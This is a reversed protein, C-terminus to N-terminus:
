NAEVVSLSVAKSRTEQEPNYYEWAVAPAATVRGSLAARLRYGLRLSQSPELARLYLLLSRPLQQVKAVAQSQVLKALDDAEPTFGPPLPLDLMVMPAQEAQRNVLDATVTTTEGVKLETRDYTLELALREQRPQEATPTHQSFAIQYLSATGTRDTLRLRHAGKGLHSSLRVLQVVEAQEAPIVLDQIVKGDLAVEIRREQAGGLPRGTGALIAKLALVTAQTSHWTGRGDKQGALWALSGRVAGPERGGALLALSALATTEINGCHGAGCFMTRAAPERGWWVLEEGRSLQKLGALRDLFPSVATGKPELALLANCVLALTYPDHTESANKLLFDRTLGAQAAEQGNAFVAWAIYATVGLRTREGFSHPGGPPGWAGDAQRQDLLWRRTREILAPDVEHVRAMDEFEMLGYATLTTSAPPKGFWDFGGGPVEFTLLRQYGLRIYHRAKAEVEPVSREVRRLYDLALINPYTTSSTQEFCGHPLQFIQDLGEVLQSFASPYIRVLGKVSGEIADDRVILAIEAPRQLNGNVVQETRRGGPVVEVTRQVADAVEGGQATVQLRQQGVQRARLRFSLSRVAGAGVEVTKTAQDRMEFWPAEVLTLSVTQPRDLYNSVVVPVAVEDGRTLAAPLNLDVFFPQFVRIASHGTGLQGDATVASANLRWTTISDALSVEVQARGVDDTVVEPRWLLTEPFWQRLRPMEPGAHKQQFANPNAAQLNAIALEIQKLDNMAQSRASAERVKQVSPLMLGISLSGILLFVLCGFANDKFVLRFCYFVLVIGFVCGYVVWLVTVVKLGAQRLAETKRAKEPFTSVNLTHNQGEQRLIALAQPPLWDLDILKEWDPRELVQFVRENNEVFPLLERLFADRGTKGKEGATRAFLAQEFRRWQDLPGPPAATPSWPYLAHVPQLLRTEDPSFAAKNPPAQGPVSFVAEDVAALSLAGPAAKGERDRLQLTLRATQGPRYEKRDAEAQITIQRPQRVYVARTKSVPRESAGFSYSCLEVVGFLDPPLDLACEGQGETLAVRETWLTQRDKLFDIFVVDKGRGLVTVRMRESGEYVAKDTRLLFDEEAAGCPLTVERSGTRGEADRARVTFRVEPERPTVEVTATGLDDTALSDKFGTVALRTRSPRSDPYTTLLYVTNPVGRVLNGGEPIVDIRLPRTTVPRSVTETQQQGVTDTVHIALSVEVDKERTRDAASEPLQCRFEAAGQADTRATIQRTAQDAEGQMRVDITVAAAAVPKGHFYSAQIKGQIGDRPQFYPQNLTVGVKFKPLAYTKVAVPIRSTSEGVQCEVQYTGETIEDALPCETSAIGYKSTKEKQSFIKNGKPDLVTFVVTAGTVPKLDPRRLALGRVLIVQGPQYVPRDTSVTLQSARRLKVLRRIEEQGDPLRAGIRLVCDGEEWDPLRLRPSGTGQSDTEFQALCVMQRPRNQEQRVQVPMDVRRPKPGDQEEAHSEELHIQVPVGPVGVQTDRNRGIVRLAIESGALLQTQGLVRLDYPTPSLWLFYLNMCGILLGAGLALLGALKGGSLSRFWGPREAAVPQIGPMPQDSKQETRGFVHENANTM